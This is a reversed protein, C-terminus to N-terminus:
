INFTKHIYKKNKADWLLLNLKGFKACIAGMAFNIPLGGSLLIYDRQPNFFYKELVDKLTWILRDLNFVNVNGETLPVMTGYKKADSMDKGNIYNVCFVRANNDLEIVEKRKCIKCVQIEDSM